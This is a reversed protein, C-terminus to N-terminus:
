ISSVVNYRLKSTYPNEDGMVNGILLLFAITKSGLTTFYCKRIEDLSVPRSPKYLDYLQSAKFETDGSEINKKFNNKFKELLNEKKEIM